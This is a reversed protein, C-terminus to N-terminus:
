GAGGDRSACPSETRHDISRAGFGCRCTCSRKFQLTDARCSPTNSPAILDGHQQGSVGVAKVAAADISKLAQQTASRVGAIWESPQPGSSPHTLVCSVIMSPSLASPALHRLPMCPTVVVAGWREQLPLSLLCHTPQDPLALGSRSM